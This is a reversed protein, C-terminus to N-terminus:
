IYLRFYPVARDHPLCPPEGVRDHREVLVGPFAGAEHELAEVDVLQVALHPTREADPLVRSAQDRITCFPIAWSKEHCRCPGLYSCRYSPKSCQDRAGRM